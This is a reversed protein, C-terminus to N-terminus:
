VAGLVAVTVTVTLGTWSSPTLALYLGGTKGSRGGADDRNHYYYPPNINLNVYKTTGGSSLDPTVRYHDADATLGGSADFAKQSNFFAATFSGSNVSIVIRVIGGEPPVSLMVWRTAGSGQFESADITRYHDNVTGFM